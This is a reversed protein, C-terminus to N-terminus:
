AAASHAFLWCCLADGWGGVAGGVWRHVRPLQKDGAPPQAGGGLAGPAGPLEVRPDPQGPPLRRLCPAPTPAAPLCAPQHAPPACRASLTLRGRGAQRGAYGNSAPLCLGGLGPCAASATAPPPPPAPQSVRPRTSATPPAATWAARARPTSCSPRSRARCSCRHPSTLHPPCVLHASTHPPTPPEPQIPSGGVWCRRRRCCIGVVGNAALLALLTAALQWQQRSVM